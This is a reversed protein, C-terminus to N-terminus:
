CWTCHVRLQCGIGSEFNSVFVAHHLRFVYSFQSQRREFQRVTYKNFGCADPCSVWLLCSCDSWKYLVIFSSAVMELSASRRWGAARSVEPRGKIYETAALTDSYSEDRQIEVRIILAANSRENEM